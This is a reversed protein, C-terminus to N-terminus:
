RRFFINGIFIDGNGEFKIQFVNARNVAGFNALPISATNWGTTPVTLAVSHEVPGPSILFVSLATSNATWYDIHLFGMSTVNQASGLEIGQYNLGGYRM